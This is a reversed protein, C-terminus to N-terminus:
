LAAVIAGAMETSTLHVVVVRTGLDDFAADHNEGSRDIAVLAGRRTLPHDSTRGLNTGLVIKVGYMVPQRDEDYVDLFWAEDRGNWYVRLYYVREDIVTDLTYESISPVLPLVQM